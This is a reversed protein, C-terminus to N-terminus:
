DWCTWKGERHCTPGNPKVQILLTDNDCDLRWSILELFNGSTEGKTWLERRSRSWFTVKGIELTKDFAEQNMFGLMLVRRTEEDQVIAPIVQMGSNDVLKSFDPRRSLENEAM